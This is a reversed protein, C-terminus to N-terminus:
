TTALLSHRVGLIRLLMKGYDRKAPLHIVQQGTFLQWFEQNNDKSALQGLHQFTDFIFISNRSDCLAEYAQEPESYGLYSLIETIKVIAASSLIVEESGSLAMCEAILEQAEDILESLEATTELPESELAMAVKVLAEEVPIENAEQRISELTPIEPPVPINEMFKMFVNAPKEEASDAETVFDMIQSTIVENVPEVVTPLEIIGSDIDADVIQISEGGISSPSISKEEAELPKNVMEPLAFSNAEIATPAKPQTNENDPHAKPAVAVTLDQEAPEVEYFKEPIEAKKAVVTILPQETDTAETKPQRELQTPNTTSSMAPENFLREPTIISDMAKTTSVAPLILEEARSYEPTPVPTKVELKQLKVQEPRTETAPKEHAVESLNEEAKIQADVILKFATDGLNALYPCVERLKSEPYYEGKYSVMRETPESEIAGDLNRQSTDPGQLDYAGETIHHSDEVDASALENLNM